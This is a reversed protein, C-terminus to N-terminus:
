VSLRAGERGHVVFKDFAEIFTVCLPIMENFILVLVGARVVSGWWENSGVDVGPRLNVVPSDGDKVNFFNLHLVLNEM